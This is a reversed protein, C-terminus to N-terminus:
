QKWASDAPEPARRITARLRPPLFLRILERHFDREYGQAALEVVGLGGRIFPTEDGGPQLRDAPPIAGVDEQHIGACDGLGGVALAAALYAFEVPEVRRRRDKNGAAVRFQAGLFHGCDLAHGPHEAGRFLGYHHRLYQRPQFYRPHCM